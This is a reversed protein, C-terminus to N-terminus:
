KVLLIEEKNKILYERTITEDENGKQNLYFNLQELNRLLKSEDVINQDINDPNGYYIIINDNLRSFAKIKDQDFGYGTEMILYDKGEVKKITLYYLRRAAKSQELEKSVAKIYNGLENELLPSFPVLTDLSDQVLIEKEKEENAITEIRELRKEDQYTAVFYGAVAIVICVAILLKKEM